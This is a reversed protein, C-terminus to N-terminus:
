ILTSYCSSQHLILVSLPSLLSPLFGYHGLKLYFGLIQRFHILTAVSLEIHFNSGRAERKSAM